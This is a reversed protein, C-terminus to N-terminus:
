SARLHDSTTVTSFDADSFVGLLIVFAKSDKDLSGSAFGQINHSITGPGKFREILVVNTSNVM